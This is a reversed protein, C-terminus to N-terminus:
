SRMRTLKSLLGDDDSPQPAYEQLLSRIERLASGVIPAGYYGGAKLHLRYAEATNVINESYDQWSFRRHPVARLKTLLTMMTFNDQHADPDGSATLRKNQKVSYDFLADLFAKAQNDIKTRLFM